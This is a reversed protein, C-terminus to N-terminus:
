PGWAVQGGGVPGCAPPFAEPERGMLASQQRRAGPFGKRPAKPSSATVWPESSQPGAAAARSSRRARGSSIHAEGLSSGTLAPGSPRLASAGPSIAAEAGGWFSPRRVDVALRLLSMAQDLRLGSLRLSSPWLRPGSARGERWAPAERRLPAGKACLLGGSAGM